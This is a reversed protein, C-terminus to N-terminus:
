DRNSFIINYSYKLMLSFFHDNISSTAPEYTNTNINYEEYPYTNNFIINQMNLVLGINSHKFDIGFEIAYTLGGLKLEQTTNLTEYTHPDMGYYISREVTKIGYSWGVKLDFYLANPKDSFYFRPNIYMPVTTASAYSLLGAGLGLYFNGFQYGMNAAIDFLIHKESTIQYEYMKMNALSIGLEPRLVFGKERMSKNPTLEM